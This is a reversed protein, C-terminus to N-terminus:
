CFAGRQNKWQLTSYGFANQLTVGPNYGARLFTSKPSPFLCFIESSQSGMAGFGYTTCFSVASPICWYWPGQVVVHLSCYM